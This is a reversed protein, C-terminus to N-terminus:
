IHESLLSRNSSEESNSRLIASSFDIQSWFAKRVSTCFQPVASFVFWVFVRGSFQKCFVICQAHSKRKDKTKTSISRKKLLDSHFCM